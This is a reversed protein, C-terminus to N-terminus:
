IRPEQSEDVPSESAAVSPRQNFDLSGRREDDAHLDVYEGGEEEELNEASEEEPPPDEGSQRPPAKGRNMLLVVLPLCACAIVLLMVLRFTSSKTVTKSDSVTENDTSNTSGNKTSNTNNSSSAEDQATSNKGRHTHKVELKELHADVNALRFNLTRELDDVKESMNRVEQLLDDQEESDHLDTESLDDDTESDHVDTEDESRSAGSNARRVPPPGLDPEVVELEGPAQNRDLWSTLSGSSRMMRSKTAKTSHQGGVGHVDVQMAMDSTMRARRPMSQEQEVVALVLATTWLVYPLLLSMTECHQSNSAPLCCSNRAQISAL